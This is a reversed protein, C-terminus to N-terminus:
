ARFGRTFRERDVFDKETAVGFFGEANLIERIAAGQLNSHEIALYGGSRLAGLAYDVIDRVVDLGDEGGFLAMSPDFNAVEPENPVEALPVYPPNALIMDVLPHGRDLDTVKGHLVEVHPALEAVNRKLYPLASDSAELAVVHAHAVARALSIAIVGSGSCLDLIHLGNEGVAISQAHTMAAEVLAQTEPRPVFVGEGVSVEFDMFPATGTIHQLPERSERRSVLAEWRELQIPDLAKGTQAQALMAGRSVELLSAMLIEADVGPTPVGARAFRESADRLAVLLDM